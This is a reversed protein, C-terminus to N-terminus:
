SEIPHGEERLFFVERLYSLSYYTQAKLVMMYMRDWTQCAHLPPLVMYIGFRNSDLVLINKKTNKVEIEVFNIIKFHLIM